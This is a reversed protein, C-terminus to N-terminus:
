AEVLGDFGHQGVKRGALRCAKRLTEELGLGQVLGDIIGANLTDGAGVTDVVEPPPFAPSAVEVGDRDLGYAGEEGWGCAMVAHPAQERMAHLFPFPAEFGRRLAYRRAFLVADADAMLSEIGERPKEIEVSRPVDPWESRMWELMRRTEEINRGEFHVWHYPTLDIRAFDELGFEPLDRYHVITRSTTRRNALVYSTPVKGHAEIRRHSVDIEYRALDDLIRVGDPEDVITGGWACRHGLQSLVVLTNTVNGGRSVRQAVARVKSDEEPYGDVTNIIDLTAVGIGLIHPM